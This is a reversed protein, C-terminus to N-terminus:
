GGAVLEKRASYQSFHPTTSRLESGDPAITGGLSTWGGQEWRAVGIAGAPLLVGTLPFSIQVPTNFEIGHPGFEALVYGAHLPNTPLDITVLADHPLAGAPVDVRFGHLEVSGGEAAVIWREARRPATLDPLSVFQLVDTLDLSPQLVAAPPAATPAVPTPADSTCGAVLLAPVLASLLIRRM